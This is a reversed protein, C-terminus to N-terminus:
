VKSKTNANLITYIHLLNAEKFFKVQLVNHQIHDYAFFLNFYKAPLDLILNGFNPLKSIALQQKLQQDEETQQFKKLVNM